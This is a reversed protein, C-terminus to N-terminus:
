RLAPLIGSDEAVATHCVIGADIDFYGHALRDWLVHYPSRSGPPENRTIMKGIVGASLSAATATRKPM